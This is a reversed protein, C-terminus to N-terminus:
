SCDPCRSSVSSIVFMLAIYSVFVNSLSVGSPRCCLKVQGKELQGLYRKMEQKCFTFAKYLAACTVVSHAEFEVGVSQPSSFMEHAAVVVADSPFPAICALSRFCRRPLIFLPCFASRGFVLIVRRRGLLRPSTNCAGVRCAPAFSFQRSVRDSQLGRSTIRQGRKFRGSFYRATHEIRKLTFLKVIQLSVQFFTKLRLAHSSEFRVKAAILGDLWSTDITNDKFEPTELLQVLYEVTTRIEGQM